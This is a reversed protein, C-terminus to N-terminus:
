LLKQHRVMSLLDKREIRCVVPMLTRKSLGALAASRVASDHSRVLDSLGRRRGIAHSGRRGAYSDGGSLGRRGVAVGGSLGRWWKVRM